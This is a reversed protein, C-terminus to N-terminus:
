SAHAGGSPLSDYPASAGEIEQRYLVEPFEYVLVGERTIESRVRFGDDMGILVKEALPLALDLEAAVETVTLRGERQTALRLVRRQLGNKVAQRREQLAKWGWFFTGTGGAGVISGILILAAEAEVVGIGILFLAALVLTAGFVRRKVGGSPLASEGSRGSDRQLSRGPSRAPEAHEWGLGCNRCVRHTRRALWYAFGGIGYTFLSVGILLAVHSTRSFYPAGRGHYGCRPCQRIDQHQVATPRSGAVVSTGTRRTRAGCTPCRDDEAQLQEGCTPCRM